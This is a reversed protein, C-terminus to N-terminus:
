APPARGSCRRARFAAEAGARARADRPHRMARYAIGLEDALDLEPAMEAFTKESRYIKAWGTKRLYDLAGSETMLAEHEAVARSFMPRMASAFELLKKPRSALWFSFLWPAVRPLFALHYNAEPSRKLGVRLLSWLRPPFAPPFITEGEIVGPM